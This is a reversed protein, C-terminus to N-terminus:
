NAAGEEGITFNSNLERLTAKAEDTGEITLIVSLPKPQPRQYEELTKRVAIIALKLIQRTTLDVDPPITLQAVDIKVLLGAESVESQLLINCLVLLNAEQIKYNPNNTPILHPSRIATVLDEPMAGSLAMPRAMVCAQLAEDVDTVAADGDTGRLSLPEFVPVVMITSSFADLLLASALFLSKLCFKVPHSQRFFRCLALTFRSSSM